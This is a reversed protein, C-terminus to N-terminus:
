PSGSPHPVAWGQESTVWWEVGDDDVTNGAWGDVEFVPQQLQRETM